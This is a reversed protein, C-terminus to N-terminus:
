KGRLKIFNVPRVVSFVFHLCTPCRLRYQSPPSAPFLLIAIGKLSAYIAIATCGGFWDKVGNLGVLSFFCIFCRTKRKSDYLIYCLVAVRFVM